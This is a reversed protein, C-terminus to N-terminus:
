FEADTNRSDTGVAVGQQRLIRLLQQSDESNLFDGVAIQECTDQQHRSCLYIKIPDWPHNQREVIISTTQKHLQWRQQAQKMGKEIILLDGSFHLVHRLNLRRCVVYLAGGLATIEIGAFPLILWAGMLSFLTAIFGTILGVTLLLQKNSQWSASQNPQAIIYRAASNRGPHMDASVTIM